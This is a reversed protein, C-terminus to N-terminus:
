RSDASAAAVVQAVQAQVLTLRNVVFLHEAGDRTVVRLRTRLGGDFPNGTLGRRGVERVDALPVSWVTAGTACDARNPDFRLQRPTLRLRGGVVRWRSTRLNAMVELLVPEDAALPAVPAWWDLLGSGM